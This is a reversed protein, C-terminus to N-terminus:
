QRVRVNLGFAHQVVLLDKLLKEEEPRYAVYCYGGKHWELDDGYREKWTSIIELSRLCLRIKAPDSHTARLGGIASKNSGQGPSPLRDIVLTRLGGEALFFATPTGVSGSGIIIVDFPRNSVM